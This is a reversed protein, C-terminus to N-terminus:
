RRRSANLARVRSGSAELAGLLDSVDVMEGLLYEHGNSCTVSDCPGLGGEVLQGALDNLVTGAEQIAMDEVHLEPLGRSSLGVTYAFSPFGPEAQVFQIMWGFQEITAFMEARLDAATLSPDDCMRCM